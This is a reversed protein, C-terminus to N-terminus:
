DPNPRKGKRKSYSSARGPKQALKAEVSLDLPLDLEEAILELLHHPSFFPQALPDDSGRRQPLMRLIARPPLAHDLLATSLHFNSTDKQAPAEEEDPNLFSFAPLSRQSNTYQIGARLWYRLCTLSIEAYLAAVTGPVWTESDKEEILDDESLHDNPSAAQLTAHLLQLAAKEHEWIKSDRAKSPMTQDVGVEEAATLRMEVAQAVRGSEAMLVDRAHWEEPSSPASRLCLLARDYWVFDNAGIDQRSSQKKDKGKSSSRRTSRKDFASKHTSRANCLLERSRLVVVFPIQEAGEAQEVNGSHGEGTEFLISQVVKAKATLPQRFATPRFIGGAQVTKVLDPLLLPSHVAMLRVVLEFYPMHRGRQKVLPVASSWRSVEEKTSSTKGDRASKEHSKQVRDRGVTSSSPTLVGDSSVAIGEILDLM